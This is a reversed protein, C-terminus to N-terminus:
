FPAWISQMQEPEPPTITQNDKTAILDDRGKENDKKTPDESTGGENEVTVILMAHHSTEEDETNKLDTKSKEM